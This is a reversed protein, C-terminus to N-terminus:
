APSYPTSCSVMTKRNNELGINASIRVRMGMATMGKRAMVIGRIIMGRMAMKRGMVIGMSVMVIDKIGMVMAMIMAM